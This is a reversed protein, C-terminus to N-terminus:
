EQLISLLTSYSTQYVHKRYFNLAVNQFYIRKSEDFHLKSIQESAMIKILINDSQNVIDFSKQAYKLQVEPDSPIKSGLLYLQALSIEDGIEIAIQTADELIHRAEDFQGYKYKIICINELAMCIALSDNVERGTAAAKISWEESETYKELSLLVDSISCEIRAKDLSNGTQSVLGYADKLSKYSELFNGLRHETIGLLGLSKTYLVYNKCQLSKESASKAYWLALSHNKQQEHVYGLNYLLRSKFSDNLSDIHKEALALWKKAENYSYEFLFVSGYYFMSKGLIEEDSIHNMVKKCLNHVNDFLHEKYYDECLGISIDGHLKDWKGSYSLLSSLISDKYKQLIDEFTSTETKFEKVYSHLLPDNLRDALNELVDLVPIQKGSEILSILSQSGLAKGLDTQSIKKEKRLVKIRQGIIFSFLEKTEQTM